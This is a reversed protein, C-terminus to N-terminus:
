FPNLGKVKGSKKMTLRYALADWIHDDMGKAVEEPKDEDRSLEPLFKLTYRCTNFIYIHPREADQEKTADLREIMIQASNARSGPSKDSNIFRIGEQEMEKAVTPARGHDIKGGNFIQNDAPGALIRSDKLIGQLLRKEKEKIRRAINRASMNLGQNRKVQKGNREETGYDEGIVILSGAPPCFREGNKFKIEEGSAEAVWLCAYPSATGYDFCRHVRWTRPITFPELEIHKSWIGGFIATYDVGYWDGYLWAARLVPDTIKQLFQKVYNAGLYINEYVSGYVRMQTAGSEEDTVVVGPPAVDIFQEKVWGKGRGYPNTTARIQEPPMNPQEPTPVFSNRLCSQLAIFVTDDPWVALEDFGLFTVENGHWKEAYDSTNKCFDLILIEGTAFNWTRTTKNYIADPFAKPIIKQSKSIVDRLSKIERRFIAGKWSAGWGKGVHTLFSILLCETKGVGRGSDYIVTRVLHEPRGSLLFVEQSSGPIPKWVADLKKKRKTIM